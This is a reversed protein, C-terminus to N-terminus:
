HASHADPSRRPRRDPPIPVPDIGGPHWPHCRAIRRLGMWLGRFPGYWQIAQYTYESCSPWYRCAPPLVPRLVIQYVRILGLLFRRIGEWLATRIMRMKGQGIRHGTEGPQRTRHGHRIGDLESDPIGM